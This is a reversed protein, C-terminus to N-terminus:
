LNRRKEKLKNEGKQNNALHSGHDANRYSARSHQVEESDEAERERDEEEEGRGVEKHKVNEPIWFLVHENQQVLTDVNKSM